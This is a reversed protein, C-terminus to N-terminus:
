RCNNSFWKTLEWNGVVSKDLNTKKNINVEDWIIDDYTFENISLRKIEDANYKTMFSQITKRTGDGLDNCLLVKNDVPFKGDDIDTTCGFGGRFSPNNFATKLWDPADRCTVMVDINVLGIGFYDM